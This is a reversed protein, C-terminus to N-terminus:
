LPCSHTSWAADGGPTPPLRGLSGRHKPHLESSSNKGLMLLTRLEVGLVSESCLGTACPDGALGTDQRLMQLLAVQRTKRSGRPGQALGVGDRAVM